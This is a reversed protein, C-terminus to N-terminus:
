AVPPFHLSFGDGTSAVRGGVLNFQVVWEMTADIEHSAGVGVNVTSGPQDVAVTFQPHASMTLAAVLAELLVARTLLPDTAVTAVSPCVVTLPRLPVLAAVEGVIVVLDSTTRGRAFAILANWLEALREIQDAAIAANAAIAAGDATAAGARMAIVEVQMAVVGLANRLDHALAAIARALAADLLRRAPRLAEAAAKEHSFAAATADDSEHETM